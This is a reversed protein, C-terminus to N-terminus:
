ALSMKSRLARQLVVAEWYRIDNAPAALAEEVTPTRSAMVGDMDGRLFPLCYTCVGHEQISAFCSAMRYNQKCCPCLSDFGKDKVYVHAERANQLSAETPLENIWYLRTGDHHRIIGGNRCFEMRDQQALFADDLMKKFRWDIGTKERSM